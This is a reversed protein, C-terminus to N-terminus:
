DQGRQSKLKKLLVLNLTISSVLLLPGVVVFLWINIEEYTIGVMGAIEYLLRVCWDFTVDIWVIGSNAM